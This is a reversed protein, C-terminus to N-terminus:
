FMNKISSNERKAGNLGDRKEKDMKPSLGKCAINPNLYISENNKVLIEKEILSKYTRSVVSKDLGTDLSLQKQSLSILNGFSMADLIYLLITFENPKLNLGILNKPFAIVFEDKFVIKPKDEKIITTVNIKNISENESNIKETLEYLGNLTPQQFDEIKAHLDDLSDYEITEQNIMYQGKKHNHLYCVM